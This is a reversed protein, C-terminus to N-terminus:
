GEHNSVLRRRSHRAAQQNALHNTQVSASQLDPHPVSRVCNKLMEELASNQARKGRAHKQHSEAELSPDKVFFSTWTIVVDGRALVDLNVRKLLSALRSLIIRAHSNVSCM